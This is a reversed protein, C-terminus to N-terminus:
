ILGRWREGDGLAPSAPVGHLPPPAKRLDPALPVAKRRGQRAVPAPGAPTSATRRVGFAPALDVDFGQPASLEAKRGAKFGIVFGIVLSCLVTAISM